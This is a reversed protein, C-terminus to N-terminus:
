NVSGDRFALTKVGVTSIFYGDTLPVSVSLGPLIWPNAAETEASTFQRGKPSVLHLALSLCLSGPILGHPM